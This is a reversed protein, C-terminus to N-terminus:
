RMRIRPDIYAIFIDGVANATIVFTSFLIVLAREMPYDGALIAHASLRGLGPWAFVTETVVAGSMLGGMQVFVVAIVPLIANKLAHKVYITLNSLGKARATRIYDQNLVDIMASRTLRMGIPTLFAGLTVAPLILHALSERGSIPLIQLKVGFLIILMIGLWYIPMAQGMVAIFTAINDIISFRKIASILGLPIAVFFYVLMGAFTLELSAPIREMILRIVPQKDVYSNGFDFKLIQALYRFLQEHIPDNLGMRERFDEIDKVLRDLEDDTLEMRNKMNFLETSLQRIRLHMLYILCLCVLIGIVLIGEIM